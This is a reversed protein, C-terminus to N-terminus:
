PKLGERIARLDKAAPTKTRLEAIEEAGLTGKAGNLTEFVYGVVASIEADTLNHGVPPMVGMFQEGGDLTIPGSLGNLVVLGVYDPRSQAASEVRKSVLPPALGPAGAGDAQHCMACNAAFVAAGDAARTDGVCLCASLTAALAAVSEMHAGPAAM